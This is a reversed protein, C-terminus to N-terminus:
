PLLLGEHVITSQKSFERDALDELTTTHFDNLAASDPIPARTMIIELESAVTCKKAPAIDWEQQIATRLPAELQDPWLTGPQIVQGTHINLTLGKKCQYTAVAVLGYHLNGDAQRLADHRVGALHDSAEMAGLAILVTRVQDVIKEPLDPSITVLTEVALAKAEPSAGELSGLGAADGFSNIVLGVEQPDQLETALAGLRPIATIGLNRAYVELAGNFRARDNSPNDIEQTLLAQIGQDRCEALSRYWRQSWFTDGLTEHTEVLWGAVAESESCAQGLAAIASSREDSQLGGIWQQATDGADVEIADIVARNAEEGTLIKAFATAANKRARAADCAALASFATATDAQTSAKLTKELARADCDQALAPALLLMLSM